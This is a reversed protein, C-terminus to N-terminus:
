IRGASSPMISCRHFSIPHRQRRTSETSMSKSTITCSAACGAPIGSFEGQTIVEYQFLHEPADLIPHKFLWVRVHEDGQAAIPLHTETFAASITAVTLAHPDDLPCTTLAEDTIRADQPGLTQVWVLYQLGADALAQAHIAEYERRANRWQLAAQAMFATGILLMVTLGVLASLFVMGRQKRRRM